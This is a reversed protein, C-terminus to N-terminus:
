IMAIKRKVSPTKASKKAPGTSEDLIDVTDGDSNVQMYIFSYLCFKILTLLSLTVLDKKLNYM